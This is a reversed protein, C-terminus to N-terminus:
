APQHERDRTLSGDGDGVGGHEGPEPPALDEPYVHGDEYHDEREGGPRQDEVAGAVPLRDEGNPAAHSSSAMAATTTPPVSSVPPYPVIFPESTPTSMRPTSCFRIFWTPVRLEYVWCIALPANRIM